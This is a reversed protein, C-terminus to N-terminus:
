NSPIHPRFVKWYYNRTNLKTNVYYVYKPPGLDASHEVIVKMKTKSVKRLTYTFTDSVYWKGEMKVYNTEKVKRVNPSYWYTKWSAKQYGSQGDYFYKTGHDILYGKQSAAATPEAFYFVSGAIFLIAFLAAVKMKM